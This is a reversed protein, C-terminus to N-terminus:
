ILKFFDIIADLGGYNIVVDCNKQLLLKARYAVSLGAIKMM